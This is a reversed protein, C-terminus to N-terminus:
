EIPKKPIIIWGTIYTIFLPLIATAVCLFVLALRVLTPDLDYSQGVGGCIGAIMQDTQSRYLKKM